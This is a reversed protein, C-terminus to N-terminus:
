CVQSQYVKSASAVLRMALKSARDEDRKMAKYLSHDVMVLMECVSGRKARSLRATTAEGPGGVESVAVASDHQFTSIRRSAATGNNFRQRRDMRKIKM